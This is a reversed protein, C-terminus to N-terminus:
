LTLACTCNSIFQLPNNSDTFFLQPFALRDPTFATLLSTSWSCPLLLTQQLLQPRYEFESSKTLSCLFWSASWLSRERRCGAKERGFLGLTTFSVAERKCIKSFSLLLFVKLSDLICSSIIAAITNIKPEGYTSIQAILSNLSMGSTADTLERQDGGPDEDFCWPWSCLCSCPLTFNSPPKIM